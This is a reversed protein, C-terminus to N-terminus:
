TNLLSFFYILFFGIVICIELQYPTLRSMYLISIEDLQIVHKAFETNVWFHLTWKDGPLFEM